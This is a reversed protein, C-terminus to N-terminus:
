GSSSALPSTPAYVTILLAVLGMSASIRAPPGTEGHRRQARGAHRHKNTHQPKHAMRSQEAERAQPPSQILATERSM